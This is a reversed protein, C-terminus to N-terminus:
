ILIRKSAARSGEDRGRSSSSKVQASPGPAPWLCQGTSGTMSVIPGDIETHHTPARAVETRVVDRRAEPLTEIPKRYPRFKVIKGPSPSSTNSDWNLTARNVPSGVLETLEQRQAPSLGRRLCKKHGTGNPWFSVRAGSAVSNGDM